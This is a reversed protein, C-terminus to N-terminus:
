YFAASIQQWDEPRLVTLGEATKRAVPKPSANASIIEAADAVDIFRPLLGLGRWYRRIVVDSPIFHGGATVRAAVRQICLDPDAIWLYILRIVYGTLKAKKAARLLSESALTTETVFSRRDLIAAARRQLLLRGANMAARGPFEPSIEAAIEDANLFDGVALVDRFHTKALTTKGAGNPGGLIWMVPAPM